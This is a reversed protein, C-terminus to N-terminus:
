TFVLALEDAATATSSLAIIEGSYRVMDTEPTDLPQADIECQNANATLISGATTGIVNQVDYQTQANFDRPLHAKDQRLLLDVNGAVERMNRLVVDVASSTGAEENLLDLGTNVNWGGGIHYITSSGNDISWTADTSKLPAGSSFTGAPMFPEVSDNDSWSFNGELTLVQTTYNVATVQIGAGSNDESGIKILSYPSFYSADDVTLSASSSGVGDALSIGTRGYDKAIGSVEWTIFGDDNWRLSFNQVIAGYVFEVFNELNHYVTGSLATTDELFSYTVSTSGVVTETGFTHKLMDGIDPATGAAGSMRLVGSASWPQVPTRGPVREVRSRGGKYDGPFEYNPPTGMKMTSVRFARAAAAKEAVGFSSEPVFFGVENHGYSFTDVGM